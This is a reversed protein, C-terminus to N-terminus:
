LKKIFFRHPIGSFFQLLTARQKKLGFSLIFREKRWGDTILKIEGHFFCPENTNKLNSKSSIDNPNSFQKLLEYICADMDMVENASKKRKKEHIM